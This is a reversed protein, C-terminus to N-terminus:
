LQETNARFLLGALPGWDVDGTGAFPNDRYWAKVAEIVAAQEAVTDELKLYANGRRDEADELEEGLRKLERGAQELASAAEKLLDETDGITAVDNALCILRKCLEAIEATESM